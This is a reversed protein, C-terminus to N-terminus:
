GRSKQKLPKILLEAYIEKLHTDGPHMLGPKRQVIVNDNSVLMLGVEVLAENDLKVLADEKLEVPTALYFLDCFPLYAEIKHDNLLDSKSVKIEVGITLPSYKKYHAQVLAVLDIRRRQLGSYARGTRKAKKQAEIRVTVETFFNAATTKYVAGYKSPYVILAAQQIWAPNPRLTLTKIIQDATM